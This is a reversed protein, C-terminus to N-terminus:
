LAKRESGTETGEAGPQGDTSEWQQLHALNVVARAMKEDLQRMAAPGPSQVQDAM